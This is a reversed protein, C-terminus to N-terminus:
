TDREALAKRVARAVIAEIGDGAGDRLFRIYGQVGDVLSVTGDDARDLVGDAILQRIRRDSLGLVRALEGTSVGRRLPALIDNEPEIM